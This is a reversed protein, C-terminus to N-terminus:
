AALDDLAVWADPYWAHNVYPYFNDQKLYKGPCVVKKQPHRNLLAGWMSFSSNAIINHQCLSMACMDVYAPAPAAYVVNDRRSFAQRCWAIDDSFVLFVCRRDRFQAFASAYYDPSLNAHTPSDLYDGRRVHLSVIERGAAGASEILATAQAKIQANFRFLGFVEERIPYWYRYNGFLGHIDYNMRPDLDLTSDVAVATNLKVTTVATHAPLSDLSLIEMPLAEFPEQVLLGKGTIWHDMFIVRHGTKKALAYLAAFNGMQSGLGETSTLQSMTVFSKM